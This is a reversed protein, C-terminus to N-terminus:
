RQTIRDKVDQFTSGGRPHSRSPGTHHHHGNHHGHSGGTSLPSHYDKEYSNAEPTYDGRKPPTQQHHGGRSDAPSAVDDERHYAHVPVNKKTPQPTRAGHSEGNMAAERNQNRSAVEAPKEQKHFTPQSYPADLRYPTKVNAVPQPTQNGIQRGSQASVPRVPPQDGAVSYPHSINSRAVSVGDGHQYYELHSSNPRTGNCIRDMRFSGILVDCFEDDSSFANSYLEFFQLALDRPINEQSGGSLQLFTSLLWFFEDKIEYDPRKKKTFDTHGRPYYFKKIQSLPVISKESPSSLAGLLDDVTRQRRDNLEPIFTCMFAPIDLFMNSKKDFANFLTQLEHDPLSVRLDHCAKSFEKYALKNDHDHDNHKLAQYFQVHKKPGGKSLQNRLTEMLGIVRSNEPFKISGTVSHASSATRQEFKDIDGIKTSKKNPLENYRFSQKIFAEFNNDNVVSPSAYEWFDLFDNFNVVGNGGRLECFMHVAEKFENQIEDQTKRGGKVDFHNRPNFLSVVVSLDVQQSAKYDLKTFADKLISRRNPNLGGNKLYEIMSFYEVHDPVRSSELYRFVSEIENQGLELNCRNLATSFSSFNLCSDGRRDANLCEFAIELLGTMGKRTAKYSMM